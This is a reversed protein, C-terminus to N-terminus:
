RHVSLFFTEPDLFYFKIYWGDKRLIHVDVTKIMDHPRIEHDQGRCKIIIEIVDEESVSNGYLLNKTEIEQREAIQYTKNRLAEIARRKQRRSDM